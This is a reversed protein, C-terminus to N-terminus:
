FPFTAQPKEPACLRPAVCKTSKATASWLYGHAINNGDVYYGAVTGSENVNVSYTGESPGKGAGPADIHFLQGDRTLLFSHVALTADEYAGAIDGHDNINSIGFDHGGPIQPISITSVQGDPYRIYTATHWNEDIYFGIVMGGDTIRSSFAGQYPQTGAGPVAFDIIDGDHRRLFPHIVTNADLYYGCIDGFKNINVATTGNWFGAFSADPSDVTTFSGNADRIYAHGATPYDVYDGTVQGNNNVSLGRTSPKYWSVSQPGNFDTFTGDASRVFAFTQSNAYVVDGVIEGHDNIGNPWTGVQLVLSSPGTAGSPDNTVVIRGDPYRVFMQIVTNADNNFTGVVEGRANVDAVITGHLPYVASGPTSTAGPADFVLFQGHHNQAHVTLTFLAIIAVLCLRRLM